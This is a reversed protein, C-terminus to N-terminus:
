CRRRGGESRRLATLLDSVLRADVREAVRLRHGGALVVEVWRRTAPRGRRRRRVWIEVFGDM